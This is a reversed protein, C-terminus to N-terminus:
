RIEMEHGFSPPFFLRYELAGDVRPPVWTSLLEPVTIPRDLGTHSSRDAGGPPM